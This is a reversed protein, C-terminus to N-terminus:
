PRIINLHSLIWQWSQDDMAEEQLMQVALDDLVQSEFKALISGVSALYGEALLDDFNPPKGGGGQIAFGMGCEVYRPIDIFLGPGLQAGEVALHAAYIRSVRDRLADALEGEDVHSAIIDNFESRTAPPIPIHKFRRSLAQGMRFVRQADVANYTGLLRWDAGALYERTPPLGEVAVESDSKDHWGLYASLPETDPARWVGVKVRHGSLWTLVGGLVRDLDARNAEDLVLWRDTSIAELLAGETSRIDGDVITEGLVISDFTWEEEPTVWLASVESRAFGFRSPDENIEALVQNLIATKGTGPPGVLLVARSSAIAVRIMRNIRESLKVPASELRGQREAASYARLFREFDQPGRFAAQRMGEFAGLEAFPNIM